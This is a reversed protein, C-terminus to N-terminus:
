HFNPDNVSMTVPVNVMPAKILYWYHFQANSAVGAPKFCELMLGHNMLKKTAQYALAPVNSCNAFNRIEDTRIGPNNAIAEFVAAKKTNGLLLLLKKIEGKSLTIPTQGNKKPMAMGNIYISM